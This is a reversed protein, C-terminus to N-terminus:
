DYDPPKLDDLNLKNRDKRDKSQIVNSWETIGWFALGGALFPTVIIAVGALDDPTKNIGQISLFCSFLILLIGLIRKGSPKNDRGEWIPKLYNWITLKKKL